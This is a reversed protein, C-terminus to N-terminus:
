VRSGTVHSDVDVELIVLQMQRDLIVSDSELDFANALLFGRLPMEAKYSDLLASAL